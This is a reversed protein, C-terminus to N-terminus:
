YISSGRLLAEEVSAWVPWGGAMLCQKSQYRMPEKKAVFFIQEKFLCGRGGAPLLICSGAASHGVIGAMRWESNAM